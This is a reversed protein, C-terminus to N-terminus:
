WGGGGGGGGGGGAGGSFGSGGSGGPPAFSQASTSSFNSVSSALYGVNFAAWDGHYWDPPTTYINEFQKAWDKELGFLMAYPLLTEFLKVKFVQSNVDTGAPLKEAGQPSQLFRIRDAEALKIFDRLGLLEDRAEVGALSRAPMIFAFGFMVLAVLLLGAALGVGALIDLNVFIFFCAVSAVSPIAAWASYSRLVKMPDKIFYGLSTLSSSLSRGLRDFKLSNTMQASSKKLDSLKIKTGPTLSEGFLIKLGELSTPHLNAPINHLELEYDTSGFIGKKPIEYITLNKYTALSILLASYALPRFKEKLIFDSSLPDLGKPPEYQPVIVGRGRPDDGFKRWRGYMIGFALLPLIVAFAVAGIVQLRRLDKEHKIEPGPVFTGKDFSLVISQTEGSALKQASFTILKGSQEDTVEAACREQGTQGFTGVYCAKKDQLKASVVSSIHVRSTIALFPQQWQTGNVNWYFEDHDAFNAIVNRMDYTIKYIQEGHVYQNADGIKLVLNDNEEYTTYNLPKGNSDTVSDIKLSVTHDEYTEPIARLIGHNQDFDPFVADITEVVHLQSTKAQNQTLYYDAAFSAITFDQTNQASTKGQFLFLSFLFICALAKLLHLRKM